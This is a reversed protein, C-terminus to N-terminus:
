MSAAAAAASCTSLSAVVLVDVVHQQSCTPFVAAACIVCIFLGGSPSPSKAFFQFRLKKLVNSRNEIKKHNKVILKFIYSCCSELLKKKILGGLFINWNGWM